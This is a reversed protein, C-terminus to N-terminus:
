RVKFCCAWMSRDATLVVPWDTAKEEEDIQLFVNNQSKNLAFVDLWVRYLGRFKVQFKYEAIVDSKNGNAMVFQGLNWSDRNLMQKM